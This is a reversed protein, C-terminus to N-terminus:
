VRPVILKDEDKINSDIKLSDIMLCLMQDTLLPDRKYHTLNM